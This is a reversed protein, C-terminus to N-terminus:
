GPIPGIEAALSSAQSGARKLCSAAKARQLPVAGRGAEDPLVTRWRSLRPPSRWTLLAIWVMATMRAL